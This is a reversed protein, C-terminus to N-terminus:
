LIFRKAVLYYFYLASFNAIWCWMSGYTNSTYYSYFSFAFMAAIFVIISLQNLDGHLIAVVSSYSVFLGWIILAPLPFIMWEWKLHKNEAVSTHFRVPFSHLLVAVFIIYAVLVYFPNEYVTTCISFFPLLMIITLGVISFLRNWEPHNLNKWLFYEVLQMSYFTLFVLLNRWPYLKFILCLFIPLSSFVFTNLSVEASWCM